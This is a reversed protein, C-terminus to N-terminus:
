KKKKKDKDLSKDITNTPYKAAKAIKARERKDTEKGILETIFERRYLSKPLVLKSTSYSKFVKLMAEKGVLEFLEYYVDNLAEAENGDVGFAEYINLEEEINSLDLKM